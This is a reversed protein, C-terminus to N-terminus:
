GAFLASLVVGHERPLNETAVIAECTAEEAESSLAFDVCNAARALSFAALLDDESVEAKMVKSFSVYISAM